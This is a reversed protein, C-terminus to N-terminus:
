GNATGAESEEHREDPHAGADSRQPRAGVFTERARTGARRLDGDVSRVDLENRRAELMEPEHSRVLVAVLEASTVLVISTVYFWLMLIIVGGIAGYTANYRGFNAVYFALVFTAVLWLVAFVAGGLLAWRWPPRVNGAYRLIVAVAVALAAFVIPWRVVAIVGSPDIGARNAASQTLLAGGVITVFSAIIGVGGLLTLIIALAYRLLFPRTEPVDYARPMAKMLANTGGAATYLAAIAGFSLLAPQQHGLIQRLQNEAFGALSPPLNDGLGSIIRQTPDGFGLWGAVFSALAALFIGFPFIAFLFRFALEAGLGPVDDHMFRRALERLDSLASHIM